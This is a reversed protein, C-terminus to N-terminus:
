AIQSLVKGYGDASKVTARDYMARATAPTARRLARTQPTHEATAILHAVFSADPRASCLASIREARELPALARATVPEHAPANLAAAQKKSTNQGTAWTIRSVTM